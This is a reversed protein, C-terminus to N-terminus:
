KKLGCEVLKFIRGRSKYWFVFGVPESFRQKKVNERMANLYSFHKQMTYIKSIDDVEKTTTIKLVNGSFEVSVDVTFTQGWLNRAQAVLPHEEDKQGKTGLPLDREMDPPDEQKTGNTRCLESLYWVVSGGLLVVGVALVTKGKKTKFFARIKKAITQSPPVFEQQTGLLSCACSFFLSYLILRRIM